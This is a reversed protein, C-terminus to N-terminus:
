ELVAEVHHVSGCTHCIVRARLTLKAPPFPQYIVEINRDPSADPNYVDKPPKKGTPCDFQFAIEAPVTTM